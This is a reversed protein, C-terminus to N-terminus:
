EISSIGTNNSVSIVTLESIFLAVHLPKAPIVQVGIKSAAWQRWKLWGSRYKQVTSPAKSELQLRLLNPVLRRLSPDVLSNAERWTGSQLVDVLFLIFYFYALFLYFLMFPICLVFLFDSAMFVDFRLGFRSGLYVAFDPLVCYFLLFPPM